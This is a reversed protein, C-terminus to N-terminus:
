SFWPVLGRPLPVLMVRAFFLQIGITALLAVGLAVPVRVGLWVFLIFLVVGSTLLFGLWDSALIYFLLVALVLLFRSLPLMRRTWPALEVWPVTARARVGRWVLGSGTGILGLGILVPFLDPGYRQGAFGPFTRTYAIMAVALAILVFGIVADNLRM